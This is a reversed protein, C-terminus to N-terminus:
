QVQLSVSVSITCQRIMELRTMAHLIAHSGETLSRLGPPEHFCWHYLVNGSGQAWYREILDITVWGAVTYM